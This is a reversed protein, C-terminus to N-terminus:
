LLGMKNPKAIRNPRYKGHTKRTYTERIPRRVISGGLLAVKNELHCALFQQQISTVSERTAEFDPLDKWQILIEAIGSPHNRVALPEVLLM